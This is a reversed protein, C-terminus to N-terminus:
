LVTVAQEGQGLITGYECKRLLQPKAQGLTPRLIKLSLVILEAIVVTVQLSKEYMRTRNNEQLYSLTTKAAKSYLM